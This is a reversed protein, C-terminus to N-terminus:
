AGLREAQPTAPTFALLGAPGILDIVTVTGSQSEVVLRAQEAALQPPGAKDPPFVGLVWGASERAEQALEALPWDRVAPLLSRLAALEQPSPGGGRWRAVLRVRPLPMDPPWDVCASAERGCQQCRGHMAAGPPGWDVRGGCHLCDGM